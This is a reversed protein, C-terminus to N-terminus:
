YKISFCMRFNRCKQLSLFNGSFTVQLRRAGLSEIRSGKAVIKTNRLHKKKEPILPEAPKGLIIGDVIQVLFKICSTPRHNWRLDSNRLQSINNNLPLNEEEDSSKSGGNDDEDSDNNDGDLLPGNEANDRERLRTQLLDTGEPNMQLLWHKPIANVKDTKTSKLHKDLRHHKPYKNLETVRLKKLKTPDECLDKWVYDEYNTETAKQSEEAREEVRKKKKFDIM